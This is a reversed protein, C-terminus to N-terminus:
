KKLRRAFAPSSVMGTRTEVVGINKNMQSHYSQPLTSWHPPQVINLDRFYTGWEELNEVITWDTKNVIAIPFPGPNAVVALSGKDKIAEETEYEERYGLFNQQPGHRVVHMHEHEQDLHRVPDVAAVGENIAHAIAKEAYSEPKIFESQNNEDKMGRMDHMDYDGTFPVINGLRVQMKFSKLSEANDMSLKFVTDEHTLTDHVWIGKIEKTGNGIDVWHGVMGILGASKAKEEMENAREGYASSLSSPKITKELINHGKAAADRQLAEITYKGAERFSLIVSNNESVTEIPAMHAEVIFNKAVERRADEGTKLMGRYDSFSVPNNRVMRFLNLGDVESAPDASVWRCLWPAYYRHGYYYLGTGDREKGSYRVVKYDAEVESRASWVATGGFPYYEERSIVQGEVDLELSLSGINDDVSWRVQDNAPIDDPMGTEWHLVRIGARGAQGTVVHLEETVVGPTVSSGSVTEQWSRRLEMGALYRVEDVAWLGSGGNVLTRTQKRVRSSGSYQYVERDNQSMDTSSRSLLTVSQLNDSGGWELADQQATLSGSPPSGAQLQRLNGNSDFWGAVDDPSQAGGDNQQVSRSSTTETTMKRTFNGAGTHTLTQLNGSDDYLYTRTYNVYQSSDPQAMAPLSAYPMVTNTANERGTANVLQYLADYSFMRVGDTAQNRWYRSAVTGDSVSLVNGTNDYGYGLAQLVTNDTRQATVTVLWQTEPEYSYVTTVGNGAVEELVQGAESWTVSELLTQKSGGAPTVAQSCIRGSVDYQWALQHGMADTQVLPAGLADSLAITTYKTAELLAQRDSDAEPWDPQAEASALFQQSGSLVTGSLAVSNVVQLGGDDYQAVCMGRLNNDQSGDNEPGADGYEGRWSVRVAGGSLQESGSVQRGLEDYSLSQVTGRGDTMWVPRGAADFVVVQWGSDTSERKLVQGALSPTNCLNAVTTDDASWATFLRPDRSESVRSDDNILNHSVLLRLQAAAEERNWNLTRVPIGRNDRVSVVPTGTAATMESM